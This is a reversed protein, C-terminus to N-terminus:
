NNIYLYAAVALAAATVPPLVEALLICAITPWQRAGFLAFLPRFMTWHRCFDMSGSRRFMWKNQPAMAVVPGDDGDRVPVGHSTAAPPDYRCVGVNPEVDDAPLWYACRRCTRSQNMRRILSERRLQNMYLVADAFKLM